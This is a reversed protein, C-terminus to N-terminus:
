NQSVKLQPRDKFDAFVGGSEFANVVIQNAKKVDIAMKEERTIRYDKVYSFVGSDNGRYIVQVEFNYPGPVVKTEFQKSPNNKEVSATARDEAVYQYIIEGNLKYTVSDVLYRKGLENKFAIILSKRSGDLGEKKLLDKLVLVQMKESMVETKMADVQSSIASLNSNKKTTNQVKVPLSEQAHLSFSFVFITTFILIKM